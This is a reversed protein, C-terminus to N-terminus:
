LGIFIFNGPALGDGPRETPQNIEPPTSESLIHPTSIYM